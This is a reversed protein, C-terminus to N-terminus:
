WKEYGPDPPCGGHLANQDGRGNPHFNYWLIVNGHKPPVLLGTDCRKMSPSWSGKCTSQFDPCVTHNHKPFVTHGGKEVDNLYWFLTALRSEWGFHNRQWHLQQGNYGM